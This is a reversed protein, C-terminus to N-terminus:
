FNYINRYWNYNGMYYNLGYDTLLDPYLSKTVDLLLEAPRAVAGEFFDNGGFRNMRADNQFICRKRFARITAVRPENALIDEVRHFMGPNFWVDSSDSLTFVNELSLKLERSSDSAWLYCGGADRILRATYSDGGPAYWVGGYSMGALVKPCPGKEKAAHAKSRVAAYDKEMVDFISDAQARVGFITGFLKIWEAKALPSNEQWESTLLLPVGIPALREYDDQGGGTAFTMVLGANLSVVKELSLSPGNGVEVLVRPSDAPLMSRFYLTSDFIYDVEGVGVIRDSLNLRTMFGIQSSSLAVTRDVPVRLVVADSFEAPLARNYNLSDRFVFFKLLTDAGIVSRIEAVSEGCLEGMRFMRSYKMPSLTGCNEGLQRLDGKNGCADLFFSFSFLTISFIFEFVLRAGRFSCFFHRLSNIKLMKHM